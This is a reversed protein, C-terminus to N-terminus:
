SCSCNLFQRASDEWVPFADVLVPRVPWEQAVPPDISVTSDLLSEDVLLNGHFQQAQFLHPLGDLSPWRARAHMHLHFRSCGFDRAVLFWIALENERVRGIV